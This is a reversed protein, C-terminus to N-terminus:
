AGRSVAMGQLLEAVVTSGRVVKSEFNSVGIRASGRPWELVRGWNRKIAEVHGL